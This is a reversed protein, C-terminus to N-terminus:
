LGKWVHERVERAFQAYDEIVVLLGQRQNGEHEFSWYARLNGFGDGPAPSGTAVSIGGGASAAAMKWLEPLDGYFSQLEPDALSQGIQSYRALYRLANSDVQRCAGNVIERVEGDGGHAKSEWLRFMLDGSRYIALGDAGADTVSWSPGEVRVPRGFAFAGESVLLSWIHEAVFGQLHQDSAPDSPTGISESSFFAKLVELLDPDHAPGGLYRDFWPDFYRPAGGCRQRVVELAIRFAAVERHQSPLRAETWQHTGEDHSELVLLKSLGAIWV